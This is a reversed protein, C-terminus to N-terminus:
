LAGARADLGAMGGYVLAAKRHEKSGAKRTCCRMTLKRLVEGQDEKIRMRRLPKWDLIGLEKKDM